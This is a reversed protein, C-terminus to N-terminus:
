VEGEMGGGEGMRPQSYKSFFSHIASLITAQFIDMGHINLDLVLYARNDSSGPDPERSYECQLHLRM